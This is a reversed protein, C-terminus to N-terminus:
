RRPARRVCRARRDVSPGPRKRIGPSEFARRQQGEEREVEGAGPRMPAAAREAGHHLAAVLGVLARRSATRGRGSRGGRGGSRAPRHARPWRRRGPRRARGRPPARRRHECAEPGAGVSARRAQQRAADVADQKGGGLGVVQVVGAVVPQLGDQESASAVRSRVPSRRRAGLDLRQRQGRQARRPLGLHRWPPSRARRCRRCAAAPSRMPARHEVADALGRHKGAIQRGIRHARKRVDGGAASSRRGASTRKRGGRMAASPGVARGRGPRVDAEVAREVEQDSVPECSRASPVAATLGRGEVGVIGVELRALAALRRAPAADGARERGAPSVDPGGGAARTSRAVGRDRSESPRAAAPRRRRAPSGRRRARTRGSRRRDGERAVVPDAPQREHQQGRPAQPARAPRAALEDAEERRRRRPRVGRRRRAPAARRAVGLELPSPADRRDIASSPEGRRASTAARGGRRAHARRARDRRGAAARRGRPAAAARHRPAACRQRRRGPADRDDRRDARRRQQGDAPHQDLVQAQQAREGAEVAAPGAEEASRSARMTNAWMTAVPPTAM